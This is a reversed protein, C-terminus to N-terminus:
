ENPQEIFNDFHRELLFITGRGKKRLPWMLGPGFIKVRSLLFRVGLGGAPLFKSFDFSSDPGFVQGAGIFAAAGWRRAFPFPLMRYEVQGAVLNRDRYRGYYYGRMLSEGGMLALQNFPPQGAVTFQGYLQTALVDRKNLPRFLRNDSIVSTFSFDSGWAEDYRLFALESFLGKRVNLVNHRNDYVLGLGLGLNASGNGGAPLEIPEEPRSQNFTVQDLRQYDVELGVYFSRYVQRLVREKILTYNGDM